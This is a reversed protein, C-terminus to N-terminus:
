LIRRLDAIMALRRRLGRSRVICMFYHALTPLRGYTNVGLIRGCSRNNAMPIVYGPDFPRFPKPPRGRELRLINRAARAGQGLAFQVSMRLPPRGHAFYASDGAAFARGDLRLCRDVELRGKKDKPVDLARVFDAAEVGAAWIVVAGEVRDGSSLGVRDGDIEAVTTELRVDIGLREINEAAYRQFERRIAPLLRDQLECVIVRREAGHRRFYAWLNTAVELGTYAGGVVVCTARPERRLADLLARADAVDDVKYARQRIEAQGYFTTRSGSAIILYDYDFESRDTRVKQSDLRVSTVRENRFAVGLKGCIAPLECTLLDPDAREGIVDPLLPLFDHTPKCDLLLVDARGRLMEAAALGAFGGGIILARSM